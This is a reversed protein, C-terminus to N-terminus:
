SGDCSGIYLYRGRTTEVSRGVIDKYCYLTMIATEVEHAHGVQADKM